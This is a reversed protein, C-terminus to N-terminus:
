KRVEYDIGWGQDHADKIVEVIQAFYDQWNEPIQGCSLLILRCPTEIYGTLMDWLADLNKGFWDPLDLSERIIEWMDREHSIYKFDIIFTPM